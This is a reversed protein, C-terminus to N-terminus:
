ASGAGKAFFDGKEFPLLRPLDDVVIAAPFVTIRRLLCAPTLRLRAFLTVASVHLDLM